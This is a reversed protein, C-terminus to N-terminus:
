CKGRKAKDIIRDRKKDEKVLKENRKEARELTRSAAKPKGGKIDKDAVKISKTIGHIKKDM